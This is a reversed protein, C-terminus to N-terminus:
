KLYYGLRIFDKDICLDLTVTPNVINNNEYEHLLYYVNLSEYRGMRQARGIVQKELDSNLEHYIIIDTAMQLNLGSGYNEANLMLVRIEGNNFRELTKNIVFGAGILKSYTIKEETMKKKLNEFTQVYNSFLLIKAKPKDKIIKILVEIKTINKVNQKIKNSIINLNQVDFLDRCLSCKGNLRTLCQLCTLNNCCPLVVPSVLSYDELCIPCIEKGVDMIRQKIAEYNTKLRQVKLEMKNIQEEHLKKNPEDRSKVCDLQLQENQLNRLLKNTVVQLINETTDINCNLKNIANQIDGANLMEMIDSSIYERVISLQRPTFCKLIIQNVEPLNMSSKVYNDCNKIIINDLIFQQSRSITNKIFINKMNRIGSSPTATIYWIFNANWTTNHPLKISSIEDIIIRSYKIDKFKSTYLEFMTTSCIIVDYTSLINDIENTKSILINVDTKKCITHVKLNCFTFTHKWQTVLNHPIVILNTKIANINDKYKLSGLNGTYLIKKHEQPCLNYNLLGLITYTKGSGVIDALIGFNSEIKYEIDNYVKDLPLFYRDKYPDDILIDFKYIVSKITKNIEGTTELQNMYYISTLQHEKLKITMNKPHLIRSSNETLLSIM